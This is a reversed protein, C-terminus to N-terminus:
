KRSSWDVHWLTDEHFSTPISILWEGIFYFFFWLLLVSVGCQLLRLARGFVSRRTLPRHVLKQLCNACVIRDDHEAVCERCFFHRCETCRAAAERASHNFCRQQAIAAM